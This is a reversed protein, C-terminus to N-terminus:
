SRGLAQFQPPANQMALAMTITGWGQVYDVICDILDPDTNAEELWQELAQSSQMTAEVRGVEPRLIVHEATEVHITCCPCKDSRGDRHHRCLNKNTASINIV